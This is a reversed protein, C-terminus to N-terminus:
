YSEGYRDFNFHESIYLDQPFSVLMGEFREFDDIGRMPLYLATPSLSNGSSCVWIQSATIETMGYYESVVGKVRVADGVSVDMGDPAYVFIGDSTAM